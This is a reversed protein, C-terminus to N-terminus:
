IDGLPVFIYNNVMQYLNNQKECNFHHLMNAGIYISPLVFYVRRSLRTNLDGLPSKPTTLFIFRMKRAFGNPQM